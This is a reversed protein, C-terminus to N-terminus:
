GSFGAISHSTSLDPQLFAFSNLIDKISINSSPYKYLYELFGKGNVKDNYKKYGIEKIKEVPLFTIKEPDSLQPPIEYGKGNGGGASCLTANVDFFLTADYLEPTQGGGYFGMFQMYIRNNSDVKKIGFYNTSPNLVLNSQDKKMQCAMLAVGKPPIDKSPDGVLFVKSGNQSSSKSSATTGSATSSQGGSAYFPIFENTDKHYTSLFLRNTGQTFDFNYVLRMPETDDTLCFYSNGNNDPETCNLFMRKKSNNNEVLVSAIITAKHNLQETGINWPFFFIPYAAGVGNNEKWYQWSPNNYAPSYSPIKGEDGKGQTENNLVRTTINDKPALVLPPTGFKVDSNVFKTMYGMPPKCKYNSLNPMQMPIKKLSKGIGCDNISKKIKPGYNFYYEEPIILSCNKGGYNMIGCRGYKNELNGVDCSFEYGGNGIKMLKMDGVTTEDIDFGCCNVELNKDICKIGYTETNLQKLKLNYTNNNIKDNVQKKMIDKFKMNNGGCNNCDYGTNKHYRKTSDNSFVYYNENDDDFKSILKCDAYNSSM